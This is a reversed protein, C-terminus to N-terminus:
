SYKSASQQSVKASHSPTSLADLSRRSRVLFHPAAHDEIEFEDFVARLEHTLTTVTGENLTFIEVALFAM